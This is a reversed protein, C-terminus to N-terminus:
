EESFLQEWGKPSIGSMVFERDDANLGTAMIDDTQRFDFLNKAAITVSYTEGTVRCPGSFVYKHEPEYIETCKCKPSDIYRM